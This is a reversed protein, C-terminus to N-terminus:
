TSFESSSPVKSHFPQNAPVGVVAANVDAALDGLAELADVQLFCDTEGKSKEWAKFAKLLTPIRTQGTTADAARKARRDSVIQM